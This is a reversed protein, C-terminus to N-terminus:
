RKTSTTSCATRRVKWFTSPWASMSRCRSASRSADDTSKRERFHAAFAAIPDDGRWWILDEALKREEEPITPYRELKESNVIALDLGAQMCHYLMVSNLVERGAEPLGFSVNSVGLVTKCRPLAEKILRIGEITEVASGIYNQDGTGVPFVLPDFIIDEPDVGYKETLIEYRASRWRCSASARSRRRRSSTRTSADSSWRPASAARWRCSASSASRATKSTSRTSSRRAQRANLAARDGRRRDLRDDAASQGTAGPPRSLGGHRGARRPRPGASLRRAGARGRRVQARGVEAAAEHAGEQILQKFRRSGLVNTREGVLLPRTDPDLQVAELGSVLSRHHHPVARPPRGAAAGALAAIHAATTGCCGGLLNLWGSDLFRGLVRVFDEPTENYRGEEDPLGANPVVAVRTRVLEALTRVHDAMLEPGTACNLGVYLLEAHLLAVALAEADQGGLMTGTPEITASVAVPVRWGAQGFAREIGILGAKINRTDQATELLLYDAGGAMLGLAQVRFNEELGGFTVGGTVSIAKTTPGM